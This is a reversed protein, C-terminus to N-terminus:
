KARQYYTVTGTEDYLLTFDTDIGTSTFLHRYRLRDSFITETLQADLYLVTGIDIVAPDPYVYTGPPIEPAIKENDADKVILTPTGLLYRVSVRPYKKELEAEYDKIKNAIRNAM